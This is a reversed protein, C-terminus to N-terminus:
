VVYYQDLLGLITFVSTGWLTDAIVMKYSYDKFVAGNTFNYISYMAFGVITYAFWKRKYQKSLPRCIWYLVGLLTIYAFIAYWINFTLKSKQIGEFVGRYLLPTMSSIWIIDLLLYIISLATFNM